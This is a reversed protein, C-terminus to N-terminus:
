AISVLLDGANVSAGPQVNISAITGDKPAVIENEMKMAELICLVDGKKVTAGQTVMIRLITGPMPATVKEAGAPATKSAAPAESKAPAPAPAPAAAPAAKPAPAPAAVPVTQVVSGDRIEDVEVEYQNGNVRILFKRM